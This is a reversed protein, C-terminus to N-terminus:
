DKREVFFFPDKRMAREAQDWMPRCEVLHVVAELVKGVRLAPASLLGAIRDYCQSYGAFTHRRCPLSRETGDALIVRYVITPGFLYPPEVLEEVSHMSTNPHLGCGLFLIQGGADRLLRFPSHAGCLTVDLHHSGLLQNARTGVGCVSHTPNVSRSTGPRTRFFEPIAGVCCPTRLCDFVPYDADVSAYSLGPLLLAGEAGLAELLGRIVTKPGGPLPGLSKLSSHVLVMGNRRLGSALLDSAIREQAQQENMTM